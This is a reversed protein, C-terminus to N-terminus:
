HAQRMPGGARTDDAIAAASPAALRPFALCWALFRQPAERRTIAVAATHARVQERM